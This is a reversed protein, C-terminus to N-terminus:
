LIQVPEETYALRDDNLLWSRYSVSEGNDVRVILYSYWPLAYERDYESPVNPCDPHSHFIGLVDLGAEAAALEGALMDEATLLFRHYQEEDAFANALTLVQSIERKGAQEAGLLLGAGENPYALRLHDRIQEVIPAPLVLM